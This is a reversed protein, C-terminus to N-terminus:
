IITDGNTWIKSMMHKNAASNSTSLNPLDPSPNVAKGFSLHKVSRFQFLKCTAIQFKIFTSSLEQFPYFCKNRAIEGEGLTNEFVQVAFVYFCLSLTLGECCVFKLSTWFAKVSLMYFNALVIPKVSFFFFISCQPFLFSHQNLGFKTNVTNKVATMNM